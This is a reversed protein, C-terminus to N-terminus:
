GRDPGEYEAASTETESVTVRALGPLSPALREWVWVALNESTPNTIGEVENLLHHDLRARLPAFADTIAAFDCVWGLVPDVEGRVAVEVRYSHGHVRACKHGEPVRPLYHAAEFTFTKRILM